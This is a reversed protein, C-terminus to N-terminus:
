LRNLFLDESSSNERLSITPPYDVSQTTPEDIWVIGNRVNNFITSHERVSDLFRNKGSIFEVHLTRVDAYVDYTSILTGDQETVLAQGSTQAPTDWNFLIKNM